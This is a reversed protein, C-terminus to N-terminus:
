IVKRKVMWLIALFSAVLHDVLNFIRLIELDSKTIADIVIHPYRIVEIVVGNSLAAFLSVLFLLIAFIFVYRWIFSWWISLAKKM